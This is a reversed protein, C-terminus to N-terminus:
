ESRTLVSCDKAGSIFAAETLAKMKENMFVPEDGDKCFCIGDPMMDLGQILPSPSDYKM